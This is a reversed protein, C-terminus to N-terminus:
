DIMVHHPSVVIVPSPRSKEILVVSSGTDGKCTLEKGIYFSSRLDKACIIRTPCFPIVTEIVAYVRSDYIHRLM